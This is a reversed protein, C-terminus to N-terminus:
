ARRRHRPRLRRRRQPGRRGARARHLPAGERGRVDDMSGHFDLHDQTLNTLAAVRFRVARVRGLELAHSSVEMAVYTAGRARMAAMTRAVNTPRRRRTSPTAVGGTSRTAWRASSGAAPAVWARRRHGRPCPAGDDDQREHRHHRRGRARVVPPRLGGVGRLALATARTTSPSCRARQADRPM